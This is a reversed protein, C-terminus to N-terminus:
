QLLAWGSFEAKLVYSAPHLGNFIYAGHEDTLM